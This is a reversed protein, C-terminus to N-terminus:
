WYARRDTRGNTPPCDIPAPIDTWRCRYIRRYVVTHGDTHPDSPRSATRDNHRGQRGPARDIEGTHRDILREPPTEIRTDTHTDTPVEAQSDTPRIAQRDSRTFRSDKVRPYRSRNTHGGSLPDIKEDTDIGVPRDTQRDRLINTQSDTHRSEGDMRRDPQRYTNVRQGGTPRVTM